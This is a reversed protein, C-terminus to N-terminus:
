PESSEEPKEVIVSVNATKGNKSATIVANGEAVGTLSGNSDVVAVSNNNSVWTYDSTKLNGSSSQVTFSRVEGIKITCSNPIVTFSEDTESSEHSSLEFFSPEKLSSEQVQSAEQSVASAAESVRNEADKEGGSKDSCGSFIIMGSIVAFILIRNRINM